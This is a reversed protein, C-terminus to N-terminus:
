DHHVHELGLFVISRVVALMTVPILALLAMAAEPNETALQQAKELFVELMRLVLVLLGLIEQLVQTLISPDALTNVVMWSAAVMMPLTAVTVLTIAIDLMERSIEVDQTEPQAELSEALRAMITAALRKPAREFPATKLLNHVRRLQSFEAFSQENEDLHAFL